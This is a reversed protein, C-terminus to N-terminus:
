NLALWDILVGGQSWPHLSQCRSGPVVHGVEPARRWCPPEVEGAGEPAGDAEEGVECVEEEDDDHGGEVEGDVAEPPAVCCLQLTANVHENHQVPFTKDENYRM